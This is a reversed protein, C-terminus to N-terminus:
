KLAQLFTEIRGFAEDSLWGSRVQADIVAGAEIAARAPRHLQEKTAAYAFPSHQGLTRATEIARSLLDDPPVVEDIWGRELATQADVNEARLMAANASPGM